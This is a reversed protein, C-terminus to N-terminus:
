RQSEAGLHRRWAAHSVLLLRDTLADMHAIDLDGLMRTGEPAGLLVSLAYDIATLLQGRESADPTVFYEEHSADVPMPQIRTPTAPCLGCSSVGRAAGDSDRRKVVTQRHALRAGNGGSDHSRTVETAPPAVPAPHHEAVRGWQM